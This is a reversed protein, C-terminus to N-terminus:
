SYTLSTRNDWVNDFLQNGDAWLMSTVTGSTALKRVRWVAASSDSSIQAEGIYLTNADAQDLKVSFNTEKNNISM